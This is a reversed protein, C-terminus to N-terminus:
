DSQEEYETPQPTVINYDAKVPQSTSSLSNSVLLATNIGLDLYAQTVSITGTPTGEDLNVILVVHLDSFDTILARQGVTLTITKDAFAQSITRITCDVGLSLQSAYLCAIFDPDEPNSPHGQCLFMFINLDSAAVSRKVRMRLVWDDDLNPTKTSLKLIQIPATVDGSDSAVEFIADDVNDATQQLNAFGGSWTPNFDENSIPLACIQTM